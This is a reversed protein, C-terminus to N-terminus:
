FGGLHRARRALKLSGASLSGASLSSYIRQASWITPEVYGIQVAKSEGIEAM